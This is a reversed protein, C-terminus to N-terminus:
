TAGMKYLIPALVWTSFMLLLSMIVFWEKKSRKKPYNLSSEIFLDKNSHFYFIVLGIISILVVGVPFLGFRFMPNGTMNLAISILFNVTSALLVGHVFATHYFADADGWRKYFRYIIGFSIRLYDRMM